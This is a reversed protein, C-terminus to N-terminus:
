PISASAPQPVVLLGRKAFRRVGDGLRPGERQVAIRHAHEAPQRRQMVVVIVTVDRDNGRIRIVLRVGFPNQHRMGRAGLSAAEGVGRRVAEGEGFVAIQLLIQFRFDSIQM